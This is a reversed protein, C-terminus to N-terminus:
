SLVGCAGGGATGTYNQALLGLVGGDVGLGEEEEEQISRGVGTVRRHRRASDVYSEGM